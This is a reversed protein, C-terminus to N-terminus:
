RERSNYTSLTACEIAAIAIGIIAASDATAKVLGAGVPAAIGTIHADLLAIGTHCAYLAAVWIMIRAKVGARVVLYADRVAHRAGLYPM